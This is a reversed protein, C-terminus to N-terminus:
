RERAEQGLIERELRERAMQPWDPDDRLAQDLMVLDVSGDRVVSDALQPDGLLGSGIVPVDTVRKISNALPVAWGPFHAVQAVALPATIDLLRVGAATLRKAAVRADQLSMGGPTFEDALLRFGIILRSGLWRRAGEVIEIPLRLRGALDPGYSDARRNHLPSLLSYLPGGDAASLLVGDAGACHARWTALIFAEALTRLASVDGAAPAPPADLTLLVRSGHQQVALVLGRLGPVFVDAYAGLHPEDAGDPPPTVQLAESIVLGVGGRARHVYYKVLEPHVFGDGSALGSSAPAMVIRNPLQRGGISLPSFLTPM